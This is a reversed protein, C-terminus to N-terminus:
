EPTNQTAVKIRLDCWQGIDAMVRERHIDNHNEHYGGQYIILDKEASVVKEYFERTGNPDTITDADGHILLLPPRFEHAHAQTWNTAEIVEVAARASGRSHVLPDALYADIVASDRSLGKADLKTDFTASPWVRAM